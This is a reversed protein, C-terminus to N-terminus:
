RENWGSSALHNLWKVILQFEDCTCMNQFTVNWRINHIKFSQVNSTFILFFSIYYQWKIIMELFSFVSYLYCFSIHINYVTINVKKIHVTNKEKGENRYKGNWDSTVTDDVKMMHVADAM